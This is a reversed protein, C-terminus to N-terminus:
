NKGTFNERHRLQLRDRQLTKHTDTSTPVDDAKETDQGQREFASEGEVDGSSDVQVEVKKAFQDNRRVMEGSSDVCVIDSGSLYM